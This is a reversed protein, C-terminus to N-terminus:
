AREHEVFGALLSTNPGTSVEVQLIVAAEVIVRYGAVLQELATLQDVKEIFPISSEPINDPDAADTGIRLNDNPDVAELNALKIRARYHHRFFVGSVNARDFVILNMGRPADAKGEMGRQM